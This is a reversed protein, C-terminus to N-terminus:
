IATHPGDPQVMIKELNDGFTYSNRFFTKSCLIQTKIKELVQTSFNRMTSSNLLINDNIYALRWTFYWSNEDASVQTEEVSKLSVSLYWIKHFDTWHPFLKEMCVSSCVRHLRCDSEVIKGVCSFFSYIIKQENGFGRSWDRRVIVFLYLFASTSQQKFLELVKHCKCLCYTNFSNPNDYKLNQEYRIANFYTQYVSREVNDAVNMNDSHCTRNEKEVGRVLSMWLDCFTILKVQSLYRCFNAEM